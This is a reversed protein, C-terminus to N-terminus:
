HTIVLKLSYVKRTYIKLYYVGAPLDSHLLTYNQNYINKTRYVMTGRTDYLEIMDVPYESEIFTKGANTPNPYVKIGHENGYEVVGTPVHTTDIVEFNVRNSVETYSDNIFLAIFYGGPAKPMASDPLTKSGEAKGDIYTYSFLPDINPDEGQKYVGLWDKPTGPGDHWTAAVYEGPNYNYKDTTLTTITDGVSFFARAGPERLSDRLFYGAFYYGKGLGSVNVNGAVGSTYVKRLPTDVGPVRGVKYIGLYDNTFGPTNQYLVKVTQGVAYSSTDTTVQPIPGHYFPARPAIEQYGDNIMYAVYYEDAATLNFKRVGAAGTTYSWKTSTVGNVGPNQGKRYIGVWDKAGGPGNSYTIKITDGTAYVASDTVVSPLAVTSNYVKFSDVDSWASWELNRDRHRVRVYHKGNNLAGSPITYELINVNHNIDISTDPGGASGYLNEYDRFKELEVNSFDKINSVQFMTSNLLEGATSAFATSTMSFPLQLSDPIVSGFAPKTPAPRNKIRYFSDILRNNYQHYISGISYVDVKIKQTASDVEVVQYAWNSITKQVDEFDQEVAMGWYQDWATGGSIINYSAKDKMQGRAYLHHHAGIHLFFKPSQSLYPVVTSRVWTSIDGVYQEAQYPRHGISIVWDVKPDVNASDMVQKAWLFQANTGSETNLYIFVVRGAQFSYYAETGSYIGKYSMSDLVFHDNYATLGLSGYTEHNGIATQIPLIPSLYKSKNLHVNEYHDLTGVDVQDGLNLLMSFNDNIDGPFLQQCKRKAAVMLSDYRPQAKIQNDGLILFRLKGNSVAAGPVPLTRFSFVASSDNGSVVKYYYKTNPQLNRLKVTHYFYNNNYGVDNMGQNTGSVNATLSAASTGMRVLSATNTSTKWNVCISNPTIAQLYPSINQATAQLVAPLMAAGALVTRLLAKM